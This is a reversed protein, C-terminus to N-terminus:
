WDDEVVLNLFYNQDEDGVGVLHIEAVCLHYWRRVEYWHLDHCHGVDLVGANQLAEYCCV